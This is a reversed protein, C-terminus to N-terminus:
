NPFLATKDIAGGKLIMNIMQAIISPPENKSWDTTWKLIIMLDMLGFLSLLLVIQPIFEFIVVTTRKFYLANLAKM